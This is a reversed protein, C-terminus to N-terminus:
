LTKRQNQLFRMLKSIMMPLKSVLKYWDIMLHTWLDKEFIVDAVEL